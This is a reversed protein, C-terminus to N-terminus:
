SCIMVLASAWDGEHTLSVLLQAQPFDREFAQRVMGHLRLSPRGMPDSEVEVLPWLEPSDALALPGPALAQSWAKIFAEKAAWRAALSAHPAPRTAATARESDTFVRLFTSGPQVLQARFTSVQVLDIGAGLVPGAAALDLGSFSPASHAFQPLGPQPIDASPLGHVFRPGSKAEQQASLPVSATAWM